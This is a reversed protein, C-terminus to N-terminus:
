PERYRVPVVKDGDRLVGNSKVIILENGNLGNRVEVREGNDLGLVVEARKVVGHPPTGTLDGVYFVNIRPGRKTLATSPITLVNKGEELVVTATGYMGHRLPGLFSGAKNDLHVEARMTRTAPDLASATRTIHGHFEAHGVDDRLGPIRLTVGDGKGDPNPNQDTSNVLPVDKQPIDILVRVKDLRMLTLLVTNDKVIAGRDLWRKSIVGDFPAKIVAYDVLVQLRAVERQAVKIKSEALKLDADMATLKAEKTEIQAKAVQWASRAAELQNKTEEALERNLTQSQVLRVTRDHKEQSRKFEAQYRNEQERAEQLEKVAVKKAEVTQDLQKEAQFLLALKYEKEAELDPIAIKVLPEGAAVQRGIDVEPKEPNLQFSEVYGPVRACLDAREMAEVVGSLEIHIAFYSREPLITEVRPLREADEKQPDNTKIGCGFLAMTVALWAWPFTTRVMQM